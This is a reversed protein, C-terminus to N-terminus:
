ASKTPENANEKKPLRKDLDRMFKGEARVAAKLLRATRDFGLVTEKLSRWATRRVTDTWEALREDRHGSKADPRWDLDGPLDELLHLFPLELRPWYRRESALSEAFQSIEKKQQKNPVKSEDPLIALRAFSWGSQRLVDAGVEAMTLTHELCAVLEPDDLYALPLPLREHRWFLRKKQDSHLGMADVTYTASRPLRGEYVLDSLWDCIRSRSRGADTREFSAFLAHSERWLARREDSGVPPWPDDKPKARPRKEFVVMTERGRRTNGQPSPGEMIVAGTVWLEGSPGEQHKLWVRRSNWTLYDLYGFPLREGPLLPEDREWVPADKAADGPFPEEDDYNLKHLNLALTQFLNPAKVILVACNALPGARASPSDRKQRTVLGGLAFSQCAVVLRAALTPPMKHDDAYCFHEFLTADSEYPIHQALVYPDKFDVPCRGSAHDFPREGDLLFFRGYWRRLYARVEDRDWSGTGDRWSSAWEEETQPGRLARHLIALLLRHLAATVLPSEELISDLEHASVLAAEIGCMRRQGDLGLCPIWPEDVLNFRPTM